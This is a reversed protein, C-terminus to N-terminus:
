ESRDPAAAGIIERALLLGDDLTQVRGDLQQEYIQRLVDGVRPGASVGLALIHRGKVIPDPAQHQHRARTRVNGIKAPGESILTRRV